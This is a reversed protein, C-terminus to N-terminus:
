FPLGNNIAVTYDGRSSKESDRMFEDIRTHALLAVGKVGNKKWTITGYGFTNSGDTDSKLTLTATKNAGIVFQVSANPVSETYGSVGDLQLHINGANTVDGSDTIIDGADNYFTLTVTVPKNSINSVTTYCNVRNDGGADRAVFHSIFEKGSGAFTMNSFFLSFFIYLIFLHRSNM